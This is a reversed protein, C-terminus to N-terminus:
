NLLRRNSGNLTHEIREKIDDSHDTLKEKANMADRRSQTEIRKNSLMTPITAENAAQKPCHM